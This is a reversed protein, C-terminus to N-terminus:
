KLKINKILENVKEEINKDDIPRRIMVEYEKGNHEFFHDEEYLGVEISKMFLNYTVMESEIGFIKGKGQDLDSYKLASSDASEIREYRKNASNFPSTNENPETINIICRTFYENDNQPLIYGIRVKEITKGTENDSSESSEDDKESKKPESCTAILDPSLNVELYKDSYKHDNEPLKYDSTYVSSKAIDMIVSMARETQSPPFWAEINFERGECHTSLSVVRVSITEDSTDPRTYAYFCYKRDGDEVVDWEPDSVNESELLSDYTKKANYELDLLVNYAGRIKLEDIYESSFEYSYEYKDELENPSELIFDDSIEFDFNLTSCKTKGETDYEPASYKDASVKDSSSTGTSSSEASSSSDSKKDCGAFSSALVVASVAAIIKKIKM